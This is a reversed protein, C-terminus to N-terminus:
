RGGTSTRTLSLAHGCLTRKTRPVETHRADANAATHGRVLAGAVGRSWLQITSPVERDSGM